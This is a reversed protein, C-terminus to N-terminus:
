KKFTLEVETIKNQANLRIDMVSHPMRKQDKLYNLYAGITTPRDYDKDGNSKYVVTLVPIEESAFKPLLEGIMQNAVDVSSAFAIQELREQLSSKQSALPDVVPEPEPEAEMTAQNLREQEASLFNKIQQVLGKLRGDDSFDQQIQREYSSLLELRNNLDTQDEVPTDKLSNLNSLLQERAEQKAAAAEAAQAEALKKKGKCGTMSLTAVSLFIIALSFLTHRHLGLLEKM